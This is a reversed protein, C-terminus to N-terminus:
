ARRREMGPYDTIFQKTLLKALAPDGPRDYFDRVAGRISSLDAVPLNLLGQVLQEDGHEKRFRRETQVLAEQLSAQLQKEDYSKRLVKVADDGILSKVRSELIAVSLKGLDTLEHASKAM